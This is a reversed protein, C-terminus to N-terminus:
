ARGTSAEGDGEGFWPGDAGAVAAGALAGADAAAVGVPRGVAEGVFRGLLEERAVGRGLEEFAGQHCPPLVRDRDGPNGHDEPDQEDDLEPRLGAIGAELRQRGLLEGDEHRVEVGAVVLQPGLDRGEFLLDPPQGVALSAALRRDALKLEVQAADPGPRAERGHGALAHPDGDAARDGPM